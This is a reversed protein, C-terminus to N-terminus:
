TKGNLHEMILKAARESAGGGGLLQRISYYDNRISEYREKNQLIDNIDEVIRDAQAESQIFEKLVPKDLLINPLSLYSINVLRKGIEFSLWSTKYFMNGALGCLAAELNTTGTKIIGARSITMLQKSNTSVECISKFDAFYAENVNPSQAIVPKYDPLETKIKTVIDKILASHKTIEQKRSGPFIAIIPERDEFSPMDGSFFDDDLLPHGVFEANIGHDGFFVVEFPLVTMLLDVNGKIKKVRSRGWAWLQPAIYYLVPIGLSHAFTSLKLNFGPYDIPIFADPKETKISEKCINLANRFFNIKKAVEWMGVVSMESIPLLSQLGFERMRIGGIGIFSIDPEITLLAKMLRAGHLDGSPEGAVIFFKKM